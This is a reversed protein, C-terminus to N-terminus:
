ILMAFVDTASWRIRTNGWSGVLANEGFHSDVISVAM